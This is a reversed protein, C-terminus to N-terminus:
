RTAVAAPRRLHRLVPDLRERVGAGAFAEALARALVRPAIAILLFWGTFAVKMPWRLDRRRWPALAGALALRWVRDGPIPHHARDLKCSVMRHGLDAVSLMPGHPRPIGARGAHEAIHRRVRGGYRVNQRVVGLDLEVSTRAYSNAGHLRYRALVQPLSRVPGYLPALCRLYVDAATRFESEPMPLIQELACRAFARSSMGAWAVDFPHRVHVSRLDGSPETATAAPHTAGTPRGDPGVVAMRYQVVALAPDAAFAAAADAAADALLEDDSDLFIVVDGTCRAFGANVASGQGGNQKLVADVRDGYGAIVDRSGDTSGDDVVIVNVDPHTQTLASDIARGLFRAYNYNDIVIDVVPGPM